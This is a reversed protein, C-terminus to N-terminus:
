YYKLSGVWLRIFGLGIHHSAVQASRHTQRDCVAFHSVTAMPLWRGPVAGDQNFMHKAKQLINFFSIVWSVVYFERTSSVLYSIAPQMKDYQFSPFLVFPCNCCYLVFKSAANSGTTCSNSAMCHIQSTGYVHVYIENKEVCVYFSVNRLFLRGM